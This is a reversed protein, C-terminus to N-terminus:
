GRAEGRDADGGPRRSDGSGGGGGNARAHGEDFAADARNREGHAIARGAGFVAGGGILSGLGIGVSRWPEPLFEAGSAIGDGISEPLRAVDFGVVVSGGPGRGASCGGAVLLALLLFSGCLVLLAVVFRKRVRDM